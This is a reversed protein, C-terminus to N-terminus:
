QKPKWDEGGEDNVLARMLDVHQQQLVVLDGLRDRVQRLVRLIAALLARQEKATANKM